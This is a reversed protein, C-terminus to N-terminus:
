GLDPREADPGLKSLLSSEQLYIATNNELFINNYMQVATIFNWLTKVGEVNSAFTNNYIRVPNDSGSGSVFVGTNTSVFINNSILIDQETICKIGVSGTQDSRITFGIIRSGDNALIRFEETGSGEIITADPGRESRLTINPQVTDLDVQSYTGPGVYYNLAQATNSLRM